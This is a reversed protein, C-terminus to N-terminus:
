FVPNEPSYHPMTQTIRRKATETSYRSTVYVSLRVSLCVVVAMGTSALSARTFITVQGQGRGNPTKTM